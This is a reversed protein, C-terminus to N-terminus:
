TVNAYYKVMRCKFNQSIYSHFAYVSRNEFSRSGERLKNNMCVLSSYLQWQEARDLQTLETPNFNIWNPYTTNVGHLRYRRNFPIFPFKTLDHSWPKHTIISCSAIKTEDSNKHQQKAFWRKTIICIILSNFFYHNYQNKFLFSYCKTYSTPNLFFVCFYNQM